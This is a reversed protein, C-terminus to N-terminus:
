RRRDAEFLKGVLPATLVALRAFARAAETQTVLRDTIRAAGAHGADSARQRSSMDLVNLPDAGALEKRLTALRTRAERLADAVDDAYASTLAQGETGDLGVTLADLDVLALDRLRTCLPEDQDPATTERANIHTTVIM